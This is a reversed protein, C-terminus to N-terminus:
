SKTLADAVHADVQCLMEMTENWIREQLKEGQSTLVFEGYETKRGRRLHAGRLTEEAETGAEGVAGYVLSRSGEETTYGDSHSLMTMQERATDPLTRILQSVCRGPDVANVIIPSGIKSLRDNLSRGFFVGFVISIEGITATLILDVHIDASFERKTDAYRRDIISSALRILYSSERLPPPVRRDKKCYDPDSIQKLISASNLLEDDLTTHSHMQSTVMVIRPKYRSTKGTESMTPLLLLTLLATSLYNVQLGMEHGDLTCEYRTPLMAANAILIDLTGIEAVFKQAFVQVSAFSGLDLPRFEISAFGTEKKIEEVANKGSVENRCALILKSPGMGALHKACEFGLGVNAGVVIVTRGTLDAIAVPLPPESARGSVGQGPKSIISNDWTKSM